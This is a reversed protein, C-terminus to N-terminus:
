CKGLAHVSAEDGDAVDVAAVFFEGFQETEDVELGIIAQDQQAIQYVATGVGRPDEFQGARM